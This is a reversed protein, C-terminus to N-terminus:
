NDRLGKKLNLVDAIFLCIPVLMAAVFGGSFGNNYLNIGGHLYGVNFAMSVHVFGAFIGAIIGFRGAIPALTHGAGLTRGPSINTVEPWSQQM